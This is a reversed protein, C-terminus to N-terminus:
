HSEARDRLVEIVQARTDLAREIARQRTVYPKLILELGYPSLSELIGLLQRAVRPSLVELMKPQMKSHTRCGFTLNHDIAVLREKGLFDYFLWNGDHRDENDILIDLTVLEVTKKPNGTRYSPRADNMFYQLSGERGHVERQVTMPVQHFGLRQDLDYAAVEHSWCGRGGRQWKFIGSVGLPLEVRFTSSIGKGYRKQSIVQGETMIWKLCSEIGAAAGDAGAERLAWAVEQYRGDGLAIELEAAMDASVFQGEAVGIAECVAAGSAGANWPLAVVLVSAALLKLM